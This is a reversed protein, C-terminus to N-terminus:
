ACAVRPPREHGRSVRGERAKILRVGVFQMPESPAAGSALLRLIDHLVGVEMEELSAGGRREFMWAGVEKADGGIQCHIHRALGLDTQTVRALAEREGAM